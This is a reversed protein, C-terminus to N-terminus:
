VLLELPSFEVSHQQPKDLPADELVQLVSNQMKSLLATTCCRGAPISLQKKHNKLKCVSSSMLKAHKCHLNNVSFFNELRWLAVKEGQATCPHLYKGDFDSKNGKVNCLTVMSIETTPLNQMTPAFLPGESPQTSRGASLQMTFHVSLQLM